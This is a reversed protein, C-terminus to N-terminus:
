PSTAKTTKPTGLRLGASRPHGVGRSEKFGERCIQSGYDPLFRIFHSKIGHFGQWNGQLSLHRKVSGDQGFSLDRGLKITPFRTTMIPVSLGRTKVVLVLEHSNLWTSSTHSALGTPLLSSFIMRWGSQGTSISPVGTVTIEPLWSVGGRTPSM